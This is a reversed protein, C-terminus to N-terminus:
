PSYGRTSHGILRGTNAEVQVCRDDYLETMGYDKINTIPLKQGIHLICWEEIHRRVEPVDRHAVGNMDGAAIAVEGGDVRATFIRVDKGDAIWQKVREVMPAIPEGIHAIGRWGDYRALTGDLDVAIWGSM